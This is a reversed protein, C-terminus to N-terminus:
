WWNKYLRNSKEKNKLICSAYCRNYKTLAIFEDLIKTKEKKTSRNYRIKLEKTIAQKQKMNLM